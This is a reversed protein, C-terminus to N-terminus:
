KAGQLAIIVAQVDYRVSKALKYCPIKGEFRWKRVSHISVSLAKALEECNLLNTPISQKQQVLRLKAKSTNTNM